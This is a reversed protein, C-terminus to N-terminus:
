GNIIRFHIGEFFLSLGNDEPICLTKQKPNRLSTDKGALSTWKSKPILLVGNEDTRFGHDLMWELAMGGWKM